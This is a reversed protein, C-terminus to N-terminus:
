QLRQATQLLGQQTEREHQYVQELHALGARIDAYKERFAPAANSLRNCAASREEDQAPSLRPTAVSCMQGLTTVEDATPKVNSALTSQLATGQNHLQDTVLSAQIAAVSLQSRTISATSSPQIQRAREVYTSVKATIAQYGKEVNPFRGLHVDAESDFRQMNAILQDIQAVFKAEAADTRQKDQAAARSNLISKSQADLVAVKEQYDSLVARKFPFPTPELGGSLTLTNGQLTGSLTFAGLGLFKSGSLTVNEGDIAGMVSVSNRDITGDPKLTTLSLQGTLHNDPTRVLELWVVSGKDSVLYTGSISRQCSTLLLVAALASLMMRVVASSENPTRMTM